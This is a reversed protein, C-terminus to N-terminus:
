QNAGAELRTPQKRNTTRLNQNKYSLYKCASIKNRKSLSCPWRLWRPRITENNLNVTPGHTNTCAGTHAHTYEHSRMCTCLQTACVYILPGTHTHVHTCTHTSTHDCAHIYSHLVCTYSHAGTHTYMRAHTHVQTIAHIYMATCCVRIHTPGQTNTCAHTHVQSIAHMYMATCCVHIHMSM